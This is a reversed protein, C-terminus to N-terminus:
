MSVGPPIILEAAALMVGGQTKTIATKASGNILSLRKKKAM